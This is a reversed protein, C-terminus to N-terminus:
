RPRRSGPRPGPKGHLQAALMRKIARRPILTKRGLKIIQLRNEAILEYIRSRGIAFEKMMGTVSVCGEDLVDDADAATTTTGHM